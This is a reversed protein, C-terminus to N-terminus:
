RRGRQEVLDTLALDAGALAVLAAGVDAITPEALAAVLGDLQEDLIRGAGALEPRRCSACPRAIDELRELEDVLALVARLRTSWTLHRPIAPGADPPIAPRSVELAASM